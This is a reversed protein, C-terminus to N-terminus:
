GRGQGDGRSGSRRPLDELATIHMIAIRSVQDYFEAKKSSPKGVHIDRNGIWILDPHYVEFSEGSSTVIRLPAFPQQRVRDRIEHPTFM